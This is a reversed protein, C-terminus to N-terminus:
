FLYIAIPRVKVDPYTLLFESENVKRGTAKSAGEAMSKLQRRRETRAEPNSDDIMNMVDIIYEEESKSFVHEVRALVRYETYEGPFDPAEEQFNKESLSFVLKVDEGNVDMRYLSESPTLENIFREIFGFGVDEEAGEIELESVEEAEDYGIEQMMDLFPLAQEMREQMENMPSPQLKGKAEVYDGEGLDDRSFDGLEGIYAISNSDTLLSYITAFEGVLNMSRAIEKESEDESSTSGQLQLIKKIGAGKTSSDLDRNRELIETVKGRNMMSFLNEVQGKDIYLIEPIDGLGDM